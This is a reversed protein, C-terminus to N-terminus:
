FPLKMGPPLKMGGMVAETEKAIVADMNAMTDNIAALITDEL